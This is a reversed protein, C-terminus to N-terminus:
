SVAKVLRLDHTRIADLGNAERRQAFLELMDTKDPIIETNKPKVKIM